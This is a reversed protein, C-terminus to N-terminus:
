AVPGRTKSLNGEAPIGHTELLRRLRTVEAELRRITGTLNRQSGPIRPQPVTGTPLQTGQAIRRAQADIAEAHELATVTAPHQRNTGKEGDNLLRLVDHTHTALHVCVHDIARALDIYARRARPDGHTDLAYDPIGGRVRIEEVARRRDYALGHLTAVERGVIELLTITGALQSRLKDIRPANTVTPRGM